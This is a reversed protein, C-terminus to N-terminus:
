PTGMEKPHILAAVVALGRAFSLPTPSCIIDPDLIHIQKTASAKLATFAAWRDRQEERAKKASGMTAILIVDPNARIVNERSFVWSPEDEAINIGGAMNIYSNIFMDRNVTKLPKMGIQIFVTKRPLDRTRAAIKGVDTRAQDVISAAEGAKGLVRGMDLTLDCMEGFTRPNEKLMVEVGQARLTKIQKKSSLPAAIVLDPRMYVIKEVNAQTMTGVKEKDKAAEPVNCYITNAALRDQAGLLYILETIAPSLSVVRQYGGATNGAAAPGTFGLIWIFALVM